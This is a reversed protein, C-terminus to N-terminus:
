TSNIINYCNLVATNVRMVYISEWSPLLTTKPVSKVILHNETELWHVWTVRMRTDFFFVWTSVFYLILQCLKWLCTTKLQGTYEHPEWDPSCEITSVFYIITSASKVVLHEFCNVFLLTNTSVTKVILHTEAPRGCCLSVTKSLECLWM